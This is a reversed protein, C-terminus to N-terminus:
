MTQFGAHAHELRTELSALIFGFPALWPNECSHMSWVDCAKTMPLSHLCYQAIETSVGLSKYREILERFGEIEKRQQHLRRICQKVGTLSGGLPSQLLATQFSLFRKTIIQTTLLMIFHYQSYWSQAWFPPWIPIWSPLWWLANWTQTQITKDVVRCQRMEDSWM